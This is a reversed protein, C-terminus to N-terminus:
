RLGHKKALATLHNRSLGGEDAAKSVNHRHKELLRRVYEREFADVVREKADRFELDAVALASLDVSPSADPSPASAVASWRVVRAEEILARLERVNGPFDAARLAALESAELEVMEGTLERALARSLPVLDERRDRLPPLFARVAALRFFVDRAVTGREVGERLDSRSTVVTRADLAEREARALEAILELGLAHPMWDLHELILTGGAAADFAAGLSGSSPGGRLDFVVMAGRRGSAAHVAAAALSKGTGEEGEIALPVDLPAVRELIAFLRRMAPSEGILAGFSGRESPALQAPVDAPTLEVRTSSGLRLEVGPQVIAGDIRSEGLFTGNTSRLDRVRVGAGVISIELHTRSVRPDDVRIDAGASSGIILSGIELLREEGMAPGATVRVRIRRSVLAGGADTGLHADKQTGLKM